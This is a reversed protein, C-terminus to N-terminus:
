TVPEAAHLVLDDGRARDDVPPAPHRAAPVDDWSAVALNDPVTIGVRAEVYGEM